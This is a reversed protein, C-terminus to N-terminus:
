VSRHLLTKVTPTPAKALPVSQSCDTIGSTTAPLASTTRLSRVPGGSLKATWPAMIISGTLRNGWCNETTKASTQTSLLGEEKERMGNKLRIGFMGEKTDAFEVKDVAAKLTTDYTMLRNNYIKVTTQEVLIPNNDTGLWNNTLKLEAPNGEAVVIEVATNQIKAKEGWFNLGNVEDLSLWIGKHHPHDEVEDLSRSIIEGSSTHVPAFFPKMYDPGFNLVTFAQGGINVQVTTENKQLQVTAEAATATSIGLSAILCLVFWKM